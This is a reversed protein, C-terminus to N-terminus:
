FRGNWSTWLTVVFKNGFTKPKRDYGYAIYYLLRNDLMETSFKYKYVCYFNNRAYNTKEVIDVIDPCCRAGFQQRSSYGCELGHKIWNKKYAVLIDGVNGITFRHKQGLADEANRPIFYIYRAGYLFSDQKTFAYSGDFQIGTGSQSYGFDVHRLRLIKHTPIGFLGSFSVKTRDTVKFTRGLTVLIDDMETGAFDTVHDTVEKIHSVAGDVRVYYSELNYIFSGLGGIFNQFVGTYKRQYIDFLLVVVSRKKENETESIPQKTIQAIRFNYVVSIAALSAYQLACFFLIRRYITYRM